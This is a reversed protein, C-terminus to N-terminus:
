AEYRDLPDEMGGNGQIMMPLPHHCKIGPPSTSKGKTPPLLTASFALAPPLLLACPLVFPCLIQPPSAPCLSSPSPSVSGNESLRSEWRAFREGIKQLQTKIIGENHHICGQTPYKKRANRALEHKAMQIKDLHDPIKIIIDNTVYKYAAAEWWDTKHPKQKM